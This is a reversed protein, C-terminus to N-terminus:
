LDVKVKSLLLLQVPLSSLVLDSSYHEQTKLELIEREKERETGGEM